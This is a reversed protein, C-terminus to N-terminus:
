CRLGDLEIYVSSHGLWIARLGVSPPSQLSAPAIAMVPPESPPVRVQDGFLQEVLYDLFESVKLPPHPQINVFAGDQYHPSAQVRKLREGSVTGGFSSCNSLILVSGIIFLPFFIMGWAFKSKM